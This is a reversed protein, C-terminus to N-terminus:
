ESRLLVYCKALLRYGLILIQVVRYKETTHM